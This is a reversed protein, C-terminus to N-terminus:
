LSQKLAQLQQKMSLDWRQNKTEFILGAILDPDHEIHLKINNSGVLKRIYPELEKQSVKRAAKIRVDISTLDEHSGSSVRTIKQKIQEVVPHNM